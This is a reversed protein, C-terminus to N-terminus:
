PMGDPTTTVFLNGPKLDRYVIGLTHAEAVAAISM